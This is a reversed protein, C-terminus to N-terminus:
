RNNIETNWALGKNDSQKEWAFAVTAPTQKVATTEDQALKIRTIYDKALSFVNAVAREVLELPELLSSAPSNSLTLAPTSVPVQSRALSTFLIDCTKLAPFRSEFSFSHHNIIIEQSNNKLKVDIRSFIIHDNFILTDSILCTFVCHLSRYYDPKFKGM